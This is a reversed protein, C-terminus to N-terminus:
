DTTNYVVQGKLLTSKIVEITYEQRDYTTISNKYNSVCKWKSIVDDKPEEEVWYYNKSFDFLHQSNAYQKASRVHFRLEDEDLFYGFPKNNLMIIYISDM